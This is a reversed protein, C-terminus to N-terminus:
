VRRSRGSRPGATGRPTISAWSHATTTPMDIRV